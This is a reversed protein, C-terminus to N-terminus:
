APRRRLAATARRFGSGVSATASASRLSLSWVLRIASRPALTARLRTGRAASDHLGIRVRHVDSALGAAPGPRPSYLVQEVAAAVRRAAAEASDDLRGSGVLRAVARRPTESDDPPIGYDWATDVLEHWAALVDSRRLRGARIRQRWLMPVLPVLVLLGIGSLLLLVGTLGGLLAFPGGGSSGGSTATALPDCDGLQAQKATCTPSASASPSPATSSNDSPTDPTAPDASSSSTEQTYSPESGRTPTPEFRTWGIGEFYLEPWAHADKLGVSYTGDAQATGPTFGVAVRAPIGLTRAMAAMTFAFHVCFGDKDKLFKVIADVGTGSTVSTSYTFQGNTFWRQLDVAREYDNTAGRTINAATTAVVGPLSDPVKTYERLLDAPASPAAALQAPTPEVKLSSVQYVAGSTTQGRDGIVTRGLPEYRWRGGSLDVRTAPYPLPLWLQGYDKAAVVSTNVQETKVTPTLGQPTPLQSPLAVLSRKSSQWQEGNFEDLSVIRLYLDSTDTATTRYTLVERNDPQNLNDTLAVLPNVALISGGSGV